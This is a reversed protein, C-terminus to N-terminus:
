KSAFRKFEISTKHKEQDHKRTEEKNQSLSLLFLQEDRTSGNNEAHNQGRCICPVYM